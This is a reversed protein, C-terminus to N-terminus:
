KKRHLSPFYELQLCVTLQKVSYIAVQLDPGPFLIVVHKITKNSLLLSYLLLQTIEPRSLATCVATM